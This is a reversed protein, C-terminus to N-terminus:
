RWGGRSRRYCLEILGPDRAAETCLREPDPRKWVRGLDLRDADWCVAVSVDDATRWGASHHACAFAVLGAEEDSLPLLDRIEEVLV